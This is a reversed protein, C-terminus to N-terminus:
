DLEDTRVVDGDRRPLHEVAERIFRGAIQYEPAIEALPVLVFARNFMEPHPLTLERTSIERNGFFLIDIDIVRPGWRIDPVRGMQIEIAKCLRLLERPSLSTWGIACANLFWDQDEKGWPATRYFHSVAEIDINAAFGLRALAARLNARKDGINSGLSFAVRTSRARKVEIGVHDVMSAIPASPKRIRVCVESVSPFEILVQAAIRDGLTEILKFPGSASVQAALDCLKGYCVAKSYDDERVCEDFDALCDIDIFFKQGLRTEESSVGHHGHICLNSVFIRNSM